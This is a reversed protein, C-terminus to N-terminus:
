IAKISKGHTNRLDILNKIPRYKGVRRLDFGNNLTM